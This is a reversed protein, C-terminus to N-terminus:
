SVADRLVSRSSRVVTLCLFSAQTIWCLLRVLNKGSDSLARMTRSWKPRAIKIAVQRSLQTDYALYVVGYGGRGIERILEYRGDQGM